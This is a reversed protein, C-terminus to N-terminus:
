RKPAGTDADDKKPKKREEAPAGATGPSFAPPDSAPFSEEVAEDVGDEDRRPKGEPQREKRKDSM